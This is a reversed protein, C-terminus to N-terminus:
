SMGEGNERVFAAFEDFREAGLQAARKLIKIEDESKVIRSIQSFNARAKFRIGLGKSLAEWEGASFDYPNYSLEKVGAKRLFLRTDKILNREVEIVETDKCLERAEISYRADTLFFKRGALSLFIANDCSYGCEYFVANEDKLIFNKM